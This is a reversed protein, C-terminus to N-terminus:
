LKNLDARQNWLKAAEDIACYDTNEIISKTSAQCGLCQIYAAYNGGITEYGIKGQKGCFPCPLLGTDKANM